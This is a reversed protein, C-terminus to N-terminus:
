PTGGKSVVRNCHEHGLSPDPTKWNNSAFPVRLFQVRTRGEFGRTEATLNYLGRSGIFCSRPSQSLQVCRSCAGNILAM